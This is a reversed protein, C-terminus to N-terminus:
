RLRSPCPLRGLALARSAPLFLFPRRHRVLLLQSYPLDGHSSCCPAADADLSLPIGRSRLSLSQSLGHPICQPWSFSPNPLSVINKVMPDLSPRSTDVSTAAPGIPPIPGIEWEPSSQLRRQGLSNKRKKKEKTPLFTNVELIDFIIEFLFTTLLFTTSSMLIWLKQKPGKEMHTQKFLEFNSNWFILVIISNKSLLHSWIFFDYVVFKYFEDLDVVKIKTM